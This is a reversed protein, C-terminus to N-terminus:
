GKKMEAENHWKMKIQLLWFSVIKKSIYTKFYKNLLSIM